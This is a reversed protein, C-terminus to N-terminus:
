KVKIAYIADGDDAMASFAITERDLGEDYIPAIVGYYTKKNYIYEIYQNQRKLNKNLSIKTQSSENTARSTIKKLVIVNYEGDIEEDRVRGIKEGSYRAPLAVPWGHQNFALSRVNLYHPGPDGNLRTHHILFYRKGDQLVSNHGPATYTNSQHAFHYNAIIMGGTRDWDSDTLARGSPDLYPGLIDRSRGVRVNYSDALSGYSLFLYYYDTEANYILYAGEIPAGQGGAIRTGLADTKALGSSSDLEKIYIGGFFSGYVLYLRGSKDFKVCPDIANPQDFAGAHSKHVAGVHKYEGMLSDSVALGIYSQTSGFSSISYYLYYKGGIKIIDPAWFPSGMNRGSPVSVGCYKIGESLERSISDRDFCSKGEDTWTILDRSHRFQYFGHTSITYYEGKDKIIAPDHVGYEGAREDYDHWMINGKM